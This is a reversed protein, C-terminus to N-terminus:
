KKPNEVLISHFGPRPGSRRDPGNAPVEPLDPAPNGSGHAAARRQARNGTESEPLAATGPDRPAGPVKPKPPKTNEFKGAM